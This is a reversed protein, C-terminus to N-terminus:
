MLAIPYNVGDLQILFSGIGPDRHRHAGTVYRGPNARM